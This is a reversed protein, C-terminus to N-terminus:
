ETKFAKYLERLKSIDNCKKYNAQGIVSKIKATIEAKNEATVLPKILADVADIAKQLQEPDVAAPAPAVTAAEAKQIVPQVPAVEGESVWQYLKKGTDPTITFYQGDFVGTRDKTANAVHDADLMWVVSYEYINTGEAIIGLGLSKVVKKGADNVEQTYETKARYNAIVHCDAQLIANMMKTQDQKVPKWSSFNSKTREAIKGQTELADLWWASVTDIIVFEMQHQTCLSLCDILMQEEFPPEVDVVNYSGIVTAGVRKGVYLSASKNEADIVAIHDWIQEDSWDPHEARIYGYALLLASLTKGSGSSGGIALKVKAQIRKAKKFEFGM